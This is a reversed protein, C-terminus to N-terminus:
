TGGELLRATARAGRHGARDAIDELPTGSRRAANVYGRRLVNASVPKDIGSAAATRKILFDAGFRTLRASRQAVASEGLFLPGRTRAGVQAEVAAGTRDGVEVRERTGRRDVEIAVGRRGVHVRPVDIALATNLKMGEVALLLVLAAAKTNLREAAEVLAEIETDDLAAAPPANAPAPRSAAQAPNEVAVGADNVYRFFSGIGSMRRAVTASSMGTALCADRYGEVDGALAGLVDRGTEDCWRAFSRLDSEYAARTNGSAHQALWGPVFAATRRDVNRMTSVIRKVTLM